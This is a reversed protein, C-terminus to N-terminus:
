GLVCNSKYHLSLREKWHVAGLVHSILRHVSGLVHSVCWSSFSTPQLTRWNMWMIFILFSRVRLVRHHVFVAAEELSLHIPCITKPWLICTVLAVVKYRGKFNDEYIDLTILFSSRFVFSPYAQFVSRFIQIKFNESSVAISSDTSSWINFRLLYM